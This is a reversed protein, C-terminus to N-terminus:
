SSTFNEGPGRHIRIIDQLFAGIHNSPIGSDPWHDRVRGCDGRLYGTLARIYEKPKVLFLTEVSVRYDDDSLWLILARPSGQRRTKRRRELEVCCSSPVLHHSLVVRCLTESWRVAIARLIQAPLKRLSCCNRLDRETKRAFPSIQAQYTVQMSASVADPMVGTTDRAKFTLLLSCGLILSM